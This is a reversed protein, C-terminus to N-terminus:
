IEISCLEKFADELSKKKRYSERAYLRLHEQNRLYREHDTSRRRDQDVGYGRVNLSKSKDIKRIEIAEKDLLEQRNNVTMVEILEIKFHEIGITNMHMYLPIHAYKTQRSARKHQDMREKLQRKSSGVYVKDDVDNVIRYIRGELTM